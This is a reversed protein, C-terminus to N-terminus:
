AIGLEKVRRYFTSRAMGLKKAAAIKDGGTERLASEIAEREAADRHGRIDGLPMPMTVEPLTIDASGRQVPRPRLRPAGGRMRDPLDELQVIEGVDLAFAAEIVNELERVNGPWSHGGHM